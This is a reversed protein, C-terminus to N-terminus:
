PHGTTKNSRPQDEDGLQGLLERFDRASLAVVSAEGANFVVVGLRSSIAGRRAEEVAARLWHPLDWRNLLYVASDSM